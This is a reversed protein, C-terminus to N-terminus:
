SFQAQFKCSSYIMDIKDHEGLTFPWLPSSRMNVQRHQHWRCVESMVQMQWTGFIHHYRALNSGGTGHFLHIDLVLPSESWRGYSILKVWATNCPWNLGVSRHFSALGRAAIRHVTSHATSPQLWGLEQIHTVRHFSQELALATRLIKQGVFFLIMYITILALARCRWHQMLLRWLCPKWGYLLFVHMYSRADGINCDQQKLQRM